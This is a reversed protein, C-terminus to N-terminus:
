LLGKYIMLLKPLYGQVLDIVDLDTLSILDPEGNVFGERLILAPGVIAGSRFGYLATGIENIQLDKLLGEDDVLMVFEEPLYMPRVIEMYGGLYEHISKLKEHDDADPIEVARPAQKPELYVAKM